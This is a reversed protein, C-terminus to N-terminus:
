NTENETVVKNLHNIVEQLSNIFCFNDYNDYGCGRGIFVIDGNNYYNTVKTRIKQMNEETRASSHTNYLYYLQTLIDIDEVTNIKIIDIEYECSGTNYIEEETKRCIILPKYKTYLVMKASEEYKKCEAESNFRSGDIAVYSNVYEKKIIEKTEIQM